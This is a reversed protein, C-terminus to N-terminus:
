YFHRARLYHKSLGRQQYNHSQRARSNQQGRVSNHHKIDGSAMIQIEEVQMPPEQRSGRTRGM